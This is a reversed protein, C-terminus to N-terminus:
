GHKPKAAFCFWSTSRSALNRTDPVELRLGSKEQAAAVQQRIALVDPM